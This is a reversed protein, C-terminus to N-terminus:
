DIDTGFLRNRVAEVYSEAGLPEIALGLGRPNYRGMVQLLNVQGMFLDYRAQLQQELASDLSQRADLVDKMTSLGNQFQRYFGDLTQQMAKVELAVLETRARAMELAAWDAEVTSMLQHYTNRMLNQSQNFTAHAQRVQSSHKGGSFLPVNLQIGVALDEEPQFVTASEPSTYRYRDWIRLYTAYLDVTPRLSSRAVAIDSRASDVSFRAARLAPNSAEAIEKVEELTKPLSPLSPWDKLNDPAQGSLAVYNSRAAALSASLSTRQSATNAVSASAQAVDTLTGLRKEFLSRSETELKRLQREVDDNLELLANLRLVDAYSSTVSLLVQSVTADLTALAAAVNAEASALGARTAGGEYVNLTLALELSGYSQTYDSDSQRTGTAAKTRTTQSSNTQTGVGQLSLNPLYGSRAQPLLEATAKVGALAAQISPNQRYTRALASTLPEADSPPSVFFLALM